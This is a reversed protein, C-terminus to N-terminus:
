SSGPLCLMLGTGKCHETVGFGAEVFCNHNDISEPNVCVLGRECGNARQQVKKSLGKCLHVRQPGAKSVAESLFFVSDGRGVRGWGVGGLGVRGWGVGGSGVRGWGVGGSGMGGGGVVGRRPLYRRPSEPAPGSEALPVSRGAGAPPKPEARLAFISSRM